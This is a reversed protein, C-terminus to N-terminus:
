EFLYQLERKTIQKEDAAKVIEDRMRYMAKNQKEILKERKIDEESKGNGNETKVKKAAVDGNEGLKRKNSFCSIARSYSIFSM